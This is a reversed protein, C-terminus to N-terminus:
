EDVVEVGLMGVLDIAQERSIRMGRLESHSDSVTIAAIDCSSLDMGKLSTRFLDARVLTCHELRTRSRFQVESLFAERFDCDAIRTNEFKSEGLNAYRCLCGELHSSRWFSKALQVGELKCDILRTRSLFAENLQAGSLDCGRLTCGYFSAKRAQIGRLACHNLEMNHFEFFALDLPLDLEEDDAVIGEIYPDERQLARELADSLTSVWVEM